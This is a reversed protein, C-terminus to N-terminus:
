FGLVAASVSLAAIEQRDFSAALSLAGLFGDRAAAPAAGVFTGFFLGLGVRGGRVISTCSLLTRRMGGIVGSM